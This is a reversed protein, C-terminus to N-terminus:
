RRGSGGLDALWERLRAELAAPDGSILLTKRRGGQGAAIDIASRPLKWAKALLKVLAANAKGGEPPARVRVKLATRGDALAVLGEIGERSAGPQVRLLVRLGGAAAEFPVTDTPVM